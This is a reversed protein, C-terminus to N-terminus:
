RTHLQHHWAHSATSATPTGLTTVTGSVPASANSLSLYVREQDDVALFGSGNSVLGFAWEEAGSDPDYAAVVVTGSVSAGGFLVGSYAHSHVYLADAGLVLQGTASSGVLNNGYVYAGDAAAFRAVFGRRQEVGSIMGLEGDGLDTSTGGLGSVFVRSGDVIVDGLNADAIDRQWRIAGASDRSVLRTLPIPNFPSYFEPAAVIVSAYTNGAADLAVARARARFGSTPATVEAVQLVGDSARFAAVFAHASDGTPSVVTRALGGFDVTGNAVEVVRGSVAVRGGNVDLDSVSVDVPITTVWDFTLDEDYRAVFGERGSPTVTGGGFDIPGDFTGALYVNGSDDVAVTSSFSQGTSPFSRSARHAGTADFGALVTDFAFEAPDVPLFGGGLDFGLSVYTTVWTNGSATAASGTVVEFGGDGGYNLLYGLSPRCNGSRCATGPLCANTCFGCAMPSSALDAECGTTFSADCDDFSGSCSLACAGDLCVAGANLPTGCSMAAPSEDVTGDCDSDVDRGDCVEPQGPYVAARTDDCDDRPFGGTCAADLPSHMDDDVDESADEGGGDSCDNDVRDCLEPAGPYSNPDNDDCDVEATPVGSCAALAGDEDDDEGVADPRGNCDDDLGNCQEGAGPFVGVRTDDCDTANEAWSGGTGCSAPPDVPVACSLVAESGLAGFLDGDCDPYFRRTVGEDMEGDCDDDVGNCTETGDPNVEMRADDCDLGCRLGGEEMACCVTSVAGDGDGDPGLTEPNCDEDLGAADCVEPNDPFRRPDSDDCDDGGCEIARAGDGDRDPEDCGMSCRGEAELCAVECPAEGSVCGRTDADDDDPRCLETGDCFLGNDCVDDRTCRPEADPGMRPMEGDPLGTCGVLAVALLVFSARGKFLDPM